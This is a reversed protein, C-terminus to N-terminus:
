SFWSLMISAQHLAMPFFQYTDIRRLLIFINFFTSYFIPNIKDLVVNKQSFFGVDATFTLLKNKIKISIESGCM